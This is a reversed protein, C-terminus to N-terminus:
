TAFLSIDSREFLIVPSTVQIQYNYKLPEYSAIQEDYSSINFRKVRSDPFTVDINDLPQMAIKSTNEIVILASDLTENLNDVYILGDKHEINKSNIKVVVLM